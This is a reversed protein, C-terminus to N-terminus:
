WDSFGGIPKSDYGTRDDDDKWHSFISIDGDDTKSNNTCMGANGSVAFLDLLEKRASLAKDPSGIYKMLIDLMKTEMDNSYKNAATLPM